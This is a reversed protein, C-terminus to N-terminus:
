AIRNGCVRHQVSLPIRDIVSDDIGIGSIYLMVIDFAGIQKRSTLSIVVRKVAPFDRACVSVPGTAFDNGAALQKGASEAVDPESIRPARKRFISNRPLHVVAFEDVLSQDFVSCQGLM